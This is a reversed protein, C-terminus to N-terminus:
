YNLLSHSTSSPPWVEKEWVEPLNEKLWEQMRKGAKSMLQGRRMGYPKYRLDAPLM